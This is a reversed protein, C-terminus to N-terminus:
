RGKIVAVATNYTYEDYNPMIEKVAGYVEIDSKKSLAKAQEPFRQIISRIQKESASLVPPPNNNTNINNSLSHQEQAGAQKQAMGTIFSTILTQLVDPEAEDDESVSLQYEREAQRDEIKWQLSLRQEELKLKQIEEQLYTPTITNRATALRRRTLETFKCVKEVSLGLEEAIDSPKLGQEKLSIIDEKDSMSLESTSYRTKAQKKKFFLM